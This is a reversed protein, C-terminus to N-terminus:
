LLDVLDAGAGHGGKVVVSPGLGQIRRAAERADNLSRIPIGALVEADPINPTVVLARPLLESRIVRVGDEDLLRDGSKAVMVPDLVVLPLELEAIAAAVAEVIAANALMGIKTAH